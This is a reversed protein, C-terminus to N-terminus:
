TRSTNFSNPIDGEKPFYLIDGERLFNSHSIGNLTLVIDEYKPQGYVEISMNWPEQAGKATVIEKQPLQTMQFDLYNLSLPDPYLSGSKSDAVVGEKMFDYRNYSM